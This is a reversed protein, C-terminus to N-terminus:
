VGERMDINVTVPLFIYHFPEANLRVNRIFAGLGHPTSGSKFGFAIYVANNGWLARDFQYTATIWHAGGNGGLSNNGIVNIGDATVGWILQDSSTADLYYEFSLTAYVYKSLDIPGYLLWTDQGAPYQDVGPTLPNHLPLNTGASWASNTFTVPPSSGVDDWVYGGTDSSNVVHRWLPLTGTLAMVPAFGTGFTETLIITEGPPRVAILPRDPESSQVFTFPPKLDHVVSQASAARQSLAAVIILVWLGILASFWFKVNKIASM